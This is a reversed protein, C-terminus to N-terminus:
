GDERAIGAEEGGNGGDGGWLHGGGVEDGLKAAEGAGLAGSVTESGSGTGIAEFEEVLVCGWVEEWEEGLDKDSGGGVREHRNRTADLVKTHGTVDEADAEAAFEVEVYERGGVQGGADTARGDIGFAPMDEIAGLDGLPTAVIPYAVTAGWDDALEEGSGEDGTGLCCGSNLGSFDNLAHGVTAGEIKGETCISIQSYM